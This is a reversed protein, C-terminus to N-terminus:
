IEDPRDCPCPEKSASDLYGGGVRRHLGSQRLGGRSRLTSRGICLCPGTGSHWIVWAKKRFHVVSRPLDEPPNDFAVKCGTIRHPGARQGAGHLFLDAGRRDAVHHLVQLKKPQQVTRMHRRPANRRLKTQAHKDVTKQFDADHRIRVALLDIGAQACVVAINGGQEVLDARGKRPYGMPGAQHQGRFAFRGDPVYFEYAQGGVAGKDHKDKGVASDLVADERRRRTLCRRRHALRRIEHISQGFSAGQAVQAVRHAM